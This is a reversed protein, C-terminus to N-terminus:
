NNRFDKKEYAEGKSQRETFVQLDTHWPKKNIQSRFFSQLHLIRGPEADM